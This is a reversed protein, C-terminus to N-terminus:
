NGIGSELDFLIAGTGPFSGRQQQGKAAANAAAAAGRVVSDGSAALEPPIIPNGERNVQLDSVHQVLSHFLVSASTLSSRRM